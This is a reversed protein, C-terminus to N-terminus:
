SFTTNLTYPLNSTTVPLGGALWEIIESTGISGKFTYIALSHSDACYTSVLLAELQQFLVQLCVACVLGYNQSNM